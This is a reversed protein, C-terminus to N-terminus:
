FGRTERRQPFSLIRGNRYNHSAFRRKIAVTSCAHFRSNKETTGSNKQRPDMTALIAKLISEPWDEKAMVVVPCVRSRCLSSIYMIYLLMPTARHALDDM